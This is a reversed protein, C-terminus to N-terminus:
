QEFPVDYPISELHGDISEVPTGPATVMKHLAGYIYEHIEEIPTTSTSWDVGCAIPFDKHYVPTAGFKKALGEWNFTPKFDVMGLAKQDEFWKDMLDKNPTNSM